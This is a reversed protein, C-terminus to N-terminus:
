GNFTLNLSLLTVGALSGWSVHPAATLFSCWQGVMHKADELFFSRSEPNNARAEHPRNNYSVANTPCPLPSNAVFSSVFSRRTTVFKGWRHQMDLNIGPAFSAQTTFSTPLSAFALGAWGRINNPKQWLWMTHIMKQTRNYQTNLCNKEWIFRHRLPLAGNKYQDICRYSSM